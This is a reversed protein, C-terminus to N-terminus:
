APSVQPSNRTLWVTGQELHPAGIKSGGGQFRIAEVHGAPAAIAFVDLISPTANPLLAFPRKTVTGRLGTGTPRSLASGNVYASNKTSRRAPSRFPSSRPSAKPIELKSLISRVPITVDKHLSTKVAAVEARGLGVAAPTNVHRTFQSCGENLQTVNSHEHSKL